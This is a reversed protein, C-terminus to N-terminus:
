RYAKLLVGVGSSKPQYFNNLNDLLNVLKFAFNILYAREGAIKFKSVSVALKPSFRGGYFNRAVLNVLLHNFPLSWFTLAKSNEVKFGAKTVVREIEEPKYLRLHQNWIGAWFGKQIHINFLHELTWNVPDWLFPYNHNPVTLVLRGGKKLVKRVEKLGQVDDPLHEAVESMIAKDFKQSKFPLSKMLDAQVLRIKKGKLNIRASMLARQDNDTGVLELRLGLNSLLYIYYGDGCGVDLIRDGDQPNLEEIIRRARRKLAMDGTNELLKELRREIPKSLKNSM